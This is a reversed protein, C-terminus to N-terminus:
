INQKEVALVKKANSKSAKVKVGFIWRTLATRKIVFEFIVLSIIFSSIMILFYEPYVGINLKLIYFGVVVLISQHIVYVPFAAKNM